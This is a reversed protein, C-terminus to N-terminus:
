SAQATTINSTLRWYSYGAGSKQTTVFVMAMGSDHDIAIGPIGETYFPRILNKLADRTQKDEKRLEALKAKVNADQGASKDLAYISLAALFQEWTPDVEAESDEESDGGQGMMEFVLDLAAAHATQRVCYLSVQTSADKEAVTVNTASLTVTGIGPVHQELFYKNGEASGFKLLGAKVIAAASKDESVKTDRMEAKIQELRKALFGARQLSDEDLHLIEFDM